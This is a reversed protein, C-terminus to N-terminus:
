PQYEPMCALIGYVQYGERESDSVGDWDKATGGYNRYVKEAAANICRWTLEDEQLHPRHGECHLIGLAVWEDASGFDINNASLERNVFRLCGLWAGIDQGGSANVTAATPSAEAELTAAISERLEIGLPDDNGYAVVTALGSTDIDPAPPNCGLGALVLLGVAMGGFALMRIRGM